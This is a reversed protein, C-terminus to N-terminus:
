MDYMGRLGADIFRPTSRQAVLLRPIQEKPAHALWEEFRAKRSAALWKGQAKGVFLGIAAFAALLM